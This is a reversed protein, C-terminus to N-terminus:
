SAPMLMNGEADWTYGAETLVERAADISFEYQPLEPNHWYDIALSVYSDAPVGFGKFINQIVSEKPVLHAVAKRMAPDDFPAMRLNFAFFRFGLDPSAFLEINPDSDAVESLISSDGEWERLFNLEGTQIQGLVAEQNPIIRIVWGDAKPPSFHDTNAELILTENEQWNVFKFPGSGIAPAQDITVDEANEEKGALDALIPEWIHKPIINVKGLSAVEFAAWPENLTFRLTRDDVIEINEIRRVFPAYMPAEETKPAEFSFKVDDVTVPNGDHWMMGERITVVVNTNDEWEVSEAAWPQALGDPGLRM